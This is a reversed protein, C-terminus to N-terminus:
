AWVLGQFVTTDVRAQATLMVAAEGDASDGSEQGRQAGGAEGGGL